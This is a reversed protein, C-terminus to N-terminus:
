EEVDSVRAPVRRTTTGPAAISEIMDRRWIKTDMADGKDNVLHLLDSDSLTQASM